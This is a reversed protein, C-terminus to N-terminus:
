QAAYNRYGAVLQLMKRNVFCVSPLVGILEKETQSISAYKQWSLRLKSQTKGGTFFQGVRALGTRKADFADIKQGNMPTGGQLSLDKRPMDKDM